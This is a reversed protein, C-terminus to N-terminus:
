VDLERLLSRLAGTVSEWRKAPLQRGSSRTSEFCGEIDGLARYVALRHALDGQKLRPRLALLLSCLEAWVGVPVLSDKFRYPPRQAAM